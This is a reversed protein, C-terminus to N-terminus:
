PSVLVMERQSVPRERGASATDTATILRSSYLLLGSSASLTTESQEHLRMAAITAAQAQLRKSAAEDAAPMARITAALAEASSADTLLDTTYRIRGEEDPDRHVTGHSALPQGFPTDVPGSTAMSGGVALPPLSLGVLDIAPAKMMADRAAPPMTEFAAAIQQLEPRTMSATNAAGHIASLVRTWTADADVVALPEGTASLRIAIPVGIFPKMGAEFMTAASGAGHAQASVTSITILFGAGDRSYTVDEEMTYAADSGDPATRHEIQRYRLPRDLPPAFPLPTAALLATALAAIM